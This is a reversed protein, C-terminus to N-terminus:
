SPPPCNQDPRTTENWEVQLLQTNASFGGIPPKNTCESEGILYDRNCTEIGRTFKWFLQGCPSGSTVDIIWYALKEDRKWEKTITVAVIPPPVNLGTWLMFDHNQNGATATAVIPINALGSFIGWPSTDCIAL